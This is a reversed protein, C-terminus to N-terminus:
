PGKPAGTEAGALSKIERQLRDVKEDVAIIMQVGFILVVSFFLGSVPPIYFAFAAAIIAGIVFLSRRNSM